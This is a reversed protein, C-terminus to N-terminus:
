AIRASCILGSNYAELGDPKILDLMEVDLPLKRALEENPIHRIVFPITQLGINVPM